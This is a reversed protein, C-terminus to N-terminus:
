AAARGLFARGARQSRNAFGAGTAPLEIFPPLMHICVAQSKGDVAFPCFLDNSRSAYVFGPVQDAGLIGAAVDVEDAGTVFVSLSSKVAAPYIDKILSM